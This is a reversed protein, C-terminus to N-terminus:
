CGSPRAMAGRDTRGLPDGTCARSAADAVAPTITAVVSASVTEGLGMVRHERARRGFRHLLIATCLWVAMRFATAPIPNVPLM